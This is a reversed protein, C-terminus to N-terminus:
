SMRTNEGGVDKQLNHRLHSLELSAEVLQAREGSSFPIVVSNQLKPVEGGRPPRSLLMRPLMMFLKWARVQGLTGRRALSIAHRDFAVRCAMRFPGTVFKPVSKVVLGQIKSIDALVVQDMSEMGVSSQRAQVAGRRM